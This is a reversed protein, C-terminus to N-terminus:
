YLNKHKKQKEETSIPKEKGRISSFTLHHKLAVSGKSYKKDSEYCKDVELYTYLNIAM